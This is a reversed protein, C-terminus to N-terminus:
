NMMMAALEDEDQQEQTKIKGTPATPFDTLISADTNTETNTNSVNITPMGSLEEEAELEELMGLEDLLEDEDYDDMLPNGLAENVENQMDMAEALNDNMEDIDDINTAATQQQIAKTGTQMAQVTEANMVAEELGMIQTELNLKKGMIGNLQKELNKKKKLQFMAGKKDKRKVKAQAQKTCMDIQKELHVERKELKTIAERLTNIAANPNTRRPGSNNGGSGKKPNNGFMNFIFAM